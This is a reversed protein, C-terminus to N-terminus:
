QFDDGIDKDAIAVVEFDEVTGVLLTTRGALNLGIRGMDVLKRTLVAYWHAGTNKM